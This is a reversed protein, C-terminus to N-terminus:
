VNVVSVSALKTKLKEPLSDEFFSLFTNEYINRELNIEFVATVTVKGANLLKLGEKCPLNGTSPTIIPPPTIDRSPAATTVPREVYADQATKTKAEDEARQKRLAEAMEMRSQAEQEAKQKRLADAIERQKQAEQDRIIKAEMEQKRIADLEILRDLRAQFVDNNKDFLATGITEVDFPTDIGARRCALEVAIIRGQITMQWAFDDSVIQDIIRKAQSALAGKPTLMSEKPEPLVGKRFDKDVGRDRYAENLADVLTEKIAALRAKKAEAFQSRARQRNEQIVAVQGKTIKRDTDASETRRKFIAAATKDLATAFKNMATSDTEMKDEEDSQYVLNKTLEIKAILFRQNEANYFDEDSLEPMVLM